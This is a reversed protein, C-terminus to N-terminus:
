TAAEERDRAGLSLRGPGAGALALLAGIITLNKLFHIREGIRAAGEAERFGHFLPGAVLTFAALALASPAVQVGAVLAVRGIVELMAAALVGSHPFIAARLLRGPLLALDGRM